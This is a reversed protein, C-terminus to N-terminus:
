WFIETKGGCYVIESLDIRKLYPKQISFGLGSGAIVVQVPFLWPGVDYELMEPVRQQFQALKRVSQIIAALENLTPNQGSHMAEYIQDATVVVKGEGGKFMGVITNFVDCDYQMLWAPGSLYVKNGQM